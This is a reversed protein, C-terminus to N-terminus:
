GSEVESNAVLQVLAEIGVEGRRRCPTGIDIDLLSGLVPLTRRSWGDVFLRVQTDFHQRDVWKVMAQASAAIQAVQLDSAGLGGSISLRASAVEGFEGSAANLCNNFIELQQLNGQWEAIIEVEDFPLRIGSLAVALPDNLREFSYCYWTIGDENSYAGHCEGHNTHETFSAADIWAYLAALWRGAESADLHVMGVAGDFRIRAAESSLVVNNGDGNFVDGAKRRRMEGILSTSGYVLRDIDAGLMHLGRLLAYLAKWLRATLVTGFFQDSAASEARARLAEELSVAYAPLLECEIASVHWPWKDRDSLARGHRLAELVQGLDNRRVTM